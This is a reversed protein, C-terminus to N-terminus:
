GTRDTLNWLSNARCTLTIWNSRYMRLPLIKPLTEHFDNFKSRSRADASKEGVNTEHRVQGPAGPPGATRFANKEGPNYPTASDAYLLDDRGAPTNSVSESTNLRTSSVKRRKRCKQRATSREFRGSEGRGGRLNQLKLCGKMLEESPLTERKSWM